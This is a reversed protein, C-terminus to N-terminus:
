EDCDELDINGANYEEAALLMPAWQLYHARTRPDQFFQLYDGPTYADVNFLESEPVTLSCPIPEWRDGLDWRSKPHRRDRMWKYVARKARPQWRVIKALTGPGPDGFPKFREPRYSRHSARWDNDLRDCEKEAEKREWYDEQGITVSGTGLSANCRAIYDSISPPEGYTLARSSDHVLEVMRTMSEPDWTKVPPHPHLVPSRDFLGQIIVAIRNYKRIRNQLSRAMDDYYVSDPTFPEWKDSRLSDLKHHHPNRMWHEEPNQREWEDSKKQIEEAEIVRQEYDHRTIFKFDGFDECAMLEPSMETATQDPFIMEGFELSCNMRFLQDGNRIYVFTEFDTDRIDIISLLKWLSGGWDRKKVERRIRFAVLTRPFPFIRNLNKKKSIWRDFKTLSKIDMGGHKYDLLCEEDMYLRRQMVHLKDHMDAPQGKRVQKVEETLGAYLSITFIRDQVSEVYSDLKNVEAQLPLAEAQMWRSMDKNTSELAKFLKPLEDNKAKALAKEYKKVDDAERVKALSRENTPLPPVNAVGLRRTLDNIKTILEQAEQRYAQVNDDIVKRPDPEKKCREHFVDLHVRRSSNDPSRLKVYNSGVHVVCMFELEDDDVDSGDESYGYWFWEGPTPTDDEAPLQRTESGTSPTLESM